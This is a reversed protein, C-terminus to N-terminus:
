RILAGAAGATDLGPTDHPKPVCAISQPRMALGLDRGDIERRGDEIDQRPAAVWLREFPELRRRRAREVRCRGAESVPRARDV